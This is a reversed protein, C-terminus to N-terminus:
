ILSGSRYDEDGNVGEIVEEGWSNNYSIMQRVRAWDDMDKPPVARLVGGEICGIGEEKLLKELFIIYAENMDQFVETM